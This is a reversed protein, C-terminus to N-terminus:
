IEPADSNVLQSPTAALRCYGNYEIEGAVIECVGEGKWFSCNGCVIGKLINENELASEYGAYVPTENSFKGYREAVSVLADHFAKESDDLMSYAKAVKEEVSYLAAQQGLAQERTSHCGRVSGDPGVVAYGSCDRYGQKIDYPM